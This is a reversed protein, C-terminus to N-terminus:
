VFLIGDPEQRYFLSDSSPDLDSFFPGIRPPGWSFRGLDRASTATDSSDFTLNGDSNVFVSSYSKGFFRFPPSLPVSVSDDDRLTLKVSTGASFVTDDSVVRYRGDSSQLFRFAKGKLDFLNPRTTLTGDDELIAISGRDPQLAAAEQLMLIRSRDPRQRMLSNRYRSRALADRDRQPSTRCHFPENQQAPKGSESVAWEPYLMFVVWIGVLATCWRRLPHICLSRRM